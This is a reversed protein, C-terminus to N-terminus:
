TRESRIDPTTTCLLVLVFLATSRLTTGLGWECGGHSRRQISFGPLPPCLNAVEIHLAWGKRGDVALGDWRCCVHTDLYAAGHSPNWDGNAQVM